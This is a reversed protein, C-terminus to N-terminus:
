GRWVRPPKQSILDGLSFLEIRRPALKLVGFEPSDPGGPWIMAPDYGLPPPTNKFLDWVRRKEAPDDAWEAKADIYVQEHAPDWYSVSVHPNKALHKGKHSGRDTAIYGVPAGDVSEWIPHLIRTRPRGQRDVTAVTAWAIRAARAMFDPEIDAFDRTEQISMRRSGPETEQTM